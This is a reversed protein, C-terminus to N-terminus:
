AAAGKASFAHNLTMASTGVVLTNGDGKAKAVFSTGIISNAGSRNEVIVARGTAKTLEPVVMRAVTDTTGGPAFPVIIILNKGDSAAPQANSASSFLSAMCLTLLPLYNKITM